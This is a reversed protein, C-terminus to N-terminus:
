LRAACDRCYTFAADPANETGCRPCTRVLSPSRSHAAAMSPHPRDSDSPQMAYGRVPPPPMEDDTEVRRSLYVMVPFQLLPFVVLMVLGWAAGNM